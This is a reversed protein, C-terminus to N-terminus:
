KKRCLVLNLVFVLGVVGVLVFAVLYAGKINTYGDKSPEDSTARSFTAGM